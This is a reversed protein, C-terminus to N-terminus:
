LEGAKERHITSFKVSGGFYFKLKDEFVQSIDRNFSLGLGPYMYLKHVVYLEHLIVQLYAFLQKKGLKNNLDQSYTLYILDLLENKHSEPATLLIFFLPYHGFADLRISHSEICYRIYNIINHRLNLLGHLFMETNLIYKGKIQAISQIENISQNYYKDFQNNNLIGKLFKDFSTTKKRESAKQIFWHTLYNEQENNKRMRECLCEFYFPDDYIDLEAKLWILEELSKIVHFDGTYLVYSIIHKQKTEDEAKTTFLDLSLINDTPSLRMYNTLFNNIDGSSKSLFFVLNKRDNM